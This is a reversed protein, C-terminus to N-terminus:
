QIIGVYQHSGGAVLSLSRQFFGAGLVGAFVNQRHLSVGREVLVPHETDVPASGEDFNELFHGLAGFGDHGPTRARGVAADLRGLRIGGLGCGDM